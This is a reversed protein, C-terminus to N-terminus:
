NFASFAQEIWLAICLVARFQYSKLPPYSLSDYPKGMQLFIGGGGVIKRWLLQFILILYKQISEM